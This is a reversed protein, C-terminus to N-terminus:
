RNHGIMAYGKYKDTIMNKYFEYINAYMYEKGDYDQAIAINVIHKGTSQTCEFDYFM